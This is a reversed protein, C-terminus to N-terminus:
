NPMGNKLKFLNSVIGTWKKKIILLYSKMFDLLSTPILNISFPAVRSLLVLLSRTRITEIFHESVM